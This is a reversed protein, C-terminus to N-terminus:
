LTQGGGGEGRCVCECFTEREGSRASRLKIFLKFGKAKGKGGCRGKGRAERGVREIERDGERKGREREQKDREREQKGREGERAQREGERAQRERGRRKGTESM